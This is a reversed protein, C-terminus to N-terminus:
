AVSEEDFFDRLRMSRLPAQLRRLARAEIQRIRERTVGFENACQELTKPPQGDLGFRLRIIQAERPHLSKLVQAIRERLLERDATVHPPEAAQDPILDGFATEEDSGVARDLSLPARASRMLHEVSQRDLGSARSMEEITPTKGNRMELDGATRRLQLLDSALHNPLRILRSQDALARTVGQRIWWTAYTSFKHGLRYEYKDVARLLGANGEQILDLFSLGRGRYNKAVSVVLRLNREALEQRAVQWEQFRRRIVRLRRGLSEPTEQLRLMLEELEQIAEVARSGRRRRRVEDRKELMERHYGQLEEWLEILEPTKLSLEELLRMIKWRTRLIIRFAQPSFEWGNQQVLAAFQQRSKQLLYEITKLHHPLRSRIQHPQLQATISTDATRELPVEGRYVRVFARFAAEQAYPTLLVTRRFRFRGEEVRRALALEQERTLLPLACAQRLYLGLPDDRGNSEEELADILPTGLHGEDATLGAEHFEQEREFAEAAEELLVEREELLEEVM